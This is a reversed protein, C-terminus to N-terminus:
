GPKRANFVALGKLLTLAERLVYDDIPADAADAAIAEEEGSSLHGPLDRERLERQSPRSDAASRLVEDDAVRIDPVLGSAQISRDNPTYYRATTLKLADGNDLPMVTQVSGKGFSPTGMILARKQDQLAGALVESASATGSDALVVIPAGKLADGRKANYVSSAYPLRGRTSVIPGSDLFVDAAEVAANLLGGPNSRLDLVLGKLPAEKTHITALRSATERGTDSQFHSIRLYGFGPALLRVRVSGVRITERVLTLKIPEAEGERVILLRIESGPEGRLSEVAADVNSATVPQDDIEAIVDGSRIGARAAPTEDIPAVVMLSRDPRQVVELGLGDYAGTSLESLDESAKSDLYGSHPDLDALLGRIASQMLTADDVPDVYAQKVARFVAVFRRIEELSVREGEAVEILEDSAPAVDEAEDQAHASGAHFLGGTLLLLTPALLPTRM